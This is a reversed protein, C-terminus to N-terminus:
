RADGDVHLRDGPRRPPTACLRITGGTSSGDPADSLLSGRIPYLRRRFLTRRPPWSGMPDQREVRIGPLGAPTKPGLASVGVARRSLSVRVPRERLRRAPSASLQAAVAGGVVKVPEAREGIGACPAMVGRLYAAIEAPKKARQPDGMTLFSKGLTHTARGCGRRCRNRVCVERDAAEDAVGEDLLGPAAAM